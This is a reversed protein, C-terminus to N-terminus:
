SPAEQQRQPTTRSRKPFVVSPDRPAGGTATLWSTWGLRPPGAPDLKLPPVEERKVIMETDYEFRKFVWLNAISCLDAFSDAEPLFTTYRAFSMPGLAIRVKGSRDPIRSGLTCDVGLSSNARGLRNQREPPIPVWRFVLEKVEAAVDGFYDEVLLKLSVPPRTRMALLGIYSLLRQAPVGVLKRAEPDGLGVFSLLYGSLQDMGGPEYRYPYRYKVWSRYYLSLIRHNFLDLFDTLPEADVDTFGVLESLYTPAPSTVGYLGMFTVVLRYAWQEERKKEDEGPTEVRSIDSASFGLSTDPKFRVGENKLPGLRGVPASEGLYRELLYVLQFFDFFRGEGVVRSRLDPSAQRRDTPV